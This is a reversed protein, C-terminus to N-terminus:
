RTAKDRLMEMFETAHQGNLNYPVVEGYIRRLEANIFEPIELLQMSWDSFRPEQLIAYHNLRLDYHREDNVLKTYLHNVAPAPGDLLQMFYSDNYVLLGTIGDRHNNEISTQLIRERDTQSLNPQATSSYILRVLQQM